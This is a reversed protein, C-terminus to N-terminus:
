EDRLRRIYSVAESESYVGKAAGFFPSLARRIAPENHQDIPLPAGVFPSESKIKKTEGM